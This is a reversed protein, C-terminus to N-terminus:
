RRDMNSAINTDKIKNDNGINVSNNNYMLVVLQNVINEKEIDTKIDVDIDLEDLIGFEKELLILIDLLRNEITSFINHICQNGVELRAETIIMYPDNNYQAIVPFLDASIERGLQKESMDGVEALQKLAEAGERFEAVLLSNKLEEPMKGLPISVHKWIMHSAMSGKFYSGKIHGKVTRYQPVLIDKPYGGIEYNIWSNLEKNDFGSLLVKTRKLATLTDVTGNALEKIIKSKPM